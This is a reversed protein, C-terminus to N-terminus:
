FGYQVRNGVPACLQFDIVEMQQTRRVCMRGNLPEKEPDVRTVREWIKMMLLFDKFCPSVLIDVACMRGLNATKKLL